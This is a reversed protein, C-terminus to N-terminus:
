DTCLRWTERKKPALVTPVVCPSISRRILGQDLLEQIQKAIEENQQPTMKYSAKKPLTTGLILDIQHSFLRKPSLTAPKGDGVIAKYEELFKQVEYRQKRSLFKM